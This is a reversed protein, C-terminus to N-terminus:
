PSRWSSLVTTPGTRGACEQWGARKRGREWRLACPRAHSSLLMHPCSCTPAPTEERVGLRHVRVADAPCGRSATMCPPAPQSRVGWRAHVDHASMLWPSLLPTRSLHVSLANGVALCPPETARCPLGVSTLPTLYPTLPRQRLCSCACVRSPLVQQLQQVHSAALHLHVFHVLRPTPTPMPRASAQRVAPPHRVAMPNRVPTPYGYEKAAQACTAWIDRGQRECKAGHQAYTGRRRQRRSIYM